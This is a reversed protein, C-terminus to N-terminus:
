EWDWEFKDWHDKEGSLVEKVKPVISGAFAVTDEHSFYIAWSFDKDTYITENGGYEDLVVTEICHQPRFVNEGYSYMHTQPLGLIQELQKRYPKFYKFMVFFKESIEKPEEGMLPFWFLTNVYGWVSRFKEQLATAEPGLIVRTYPIDALSLAEKQALVEELYECFARNTKEIFHQALRNEPELVAPELVAPEYHVHVLHLVERKLEEISEFSKDILTSLKFEMECAVLYGVYTMGDQAGHANKYVVAKNMCWLKLHNIMNNYIM